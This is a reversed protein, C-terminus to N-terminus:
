GLSLEPLNRGYYFGLTWPDLLEDTICPGTSVQGGDDAILRMSHPKGGLM